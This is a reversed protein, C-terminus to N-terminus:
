SFLSRIVQVAAEKRPSTSIVALYAADSSIYGKETLWTGEVSLSFPHEAGSSDNSLCFADPPLSSLEQPLLSSLDCLADASSYLEIAAQDAILIDLADSAILAALKTQALYSDEGAAREGLYLGSNVEVLDKKGCGLIQRLQEELLDPTQLNQSHNNVLAIGLRTTFTTRYVANAAVSLIVVAALFHALYVKYYSWLYWIKDQFSMQKLKKIENSFENKISM